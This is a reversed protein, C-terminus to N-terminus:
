YPFTSRRCYESDSDRAGNPRREMVRGKGPGPTRRYAPLLTSDLQWPGFTQLIQDASISNAQVGGYDLNWCFLCPPLYINSEGYGKLWVGGCKENEEASRVLYKMYRLHCASEAEYRHRRVLWEEDDGGELGLALAFVVLLRRVVHGHVHRSFREVEDRHRALVDPHAMAAHRATFKPVNYLEYNDRVGPCLERTGAPKYGHYEGAEMDARHRMKDALPLALLAQGIAFQREVEAETLGFNKVYFFGPHTTPTRLMLWM